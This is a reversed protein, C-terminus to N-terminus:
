TKPCRMGKKLNILNNEMLSIFSEGDKIDSKSVDNGNNLKLLGAGTEQAITQALRPNIMNEYYICPVRERKVQEVLAVIKQPSPEADAMINYAAIYKLNYKKALYAFAWHGAHLVTKMKCGNLETQYRQDMAALKLKYDHANKLYYDSNRPDKKVFAAAINDVMKQANDMDLWIHPDFRSVNEEPKGEAENFPLLVAGKGTEVALMNTNKDAANIIKYAWQEMEFNTFLFIDTKSVRVVDEPRLEYHHADTGPPLLMTLKIKDKGINRAFDYVPFITAIVKLKQDGKNSEKAQQCSLLFTLFLLLLLLIKKFHM